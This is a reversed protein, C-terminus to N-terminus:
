QQFSGVESNQLDFWSSRSRILLLFQLFLNWRAPKHRTYFHPANGQIQTANKQWLSSTTCNHQWWITKNNKLELKMLRVIRASVPFSVMANVDWHWVVRWPVFVHYLCGYLYPKIQPKNYCSKITFHWWRSTSKVLNQIQLFFNSNPSKM